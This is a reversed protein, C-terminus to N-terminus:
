KGTFISAVIFFFRIHAHTISLLLSRVARLIQEPTQRIRASSLDILKNQGGLWEGALLSPTDSECDPALDRSFMYHQVLMMCCLFSFKSEVVFSGFYLIALPAGVKLSIEFKIPEVTGSSTLRLGRAM